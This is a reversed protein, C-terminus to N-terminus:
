RNKIFKGMRHIAERLQDLSTAYSCRVYGEGCEGFATGPVVAVNEQDLLKEAFELSTMGTSRICPFAYFAGTPTFCDLGIRNLHHVFYRRRRDYEKRMREVEEDGHRLAEIAAFQATTPSSMISYQHVKTMGAIAEAPGAAVGLRWGTMAWAKSFGHLLILRERLEPLSAFSTPEIEYSLPLYIEDSILILDHRIVFESIEEVRERTLAAGTPNNPYNLIMVRTAPSVAKELDQQDPTFGNEALTPVRIVKGGALEALPAYSVFSPDVVIAEDGPELLVRFSLDLAESGGVTILIESVPDYTQGCTKEFYASVEERLELMGSNSTYSTHGKELSHIGAECIHWPTAFDPEGVGLSVVGEKSMVLDFFRRIGSPAMREVQSNVLSRRVSRTPLTCTKTM